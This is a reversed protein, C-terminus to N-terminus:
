SFLNWGNKKQQVKKLERFFHIFQKTNLNQLIQFVLYVNTSYKWDEKTRQPRKKKEELNKTQKNEISTYDTKQKTKNRQKKLGVQAM